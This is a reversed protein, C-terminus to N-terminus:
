ALNMLGKLDNLSLPKILYNDIGATYAQHQFGASSVGTVAMICAPRLGVDREYERIKSTSVLGDMVPMSIDMLVFDYQSACSKYAEFAILGNSALDYTCNIKKMFTAM